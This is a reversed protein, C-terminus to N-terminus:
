ILTLSELFLSGTNWGTLWQCLCWWIPIDKNMITRNSQTCYTGPNSFHTWKKPLLATVANITKRHTFRHNTDASIKKVSSYKFIDQVIVFKKNRQDGGLWAKIGVSFLCWGTALHNKTAASFMVLLWGGAIVSSVWVVRARSCSSSNATRALLAYPKLSLM